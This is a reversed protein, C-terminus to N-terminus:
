IYTLIQQKYNKMSLKMLFLLFHKVYSLRCLVFDVDEDLCKLWHHQYTILVTITSTDKKYAHQYKDTLM